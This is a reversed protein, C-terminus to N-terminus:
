NTKDQVLQKNEEIRPWIDRLQPENEAIEFYALRVEALAENRERANEFNNAITEAREKYKAQLDTVSSDIISRLAISAEISGSAHQGKPEYVVCKVCGNHPETVAWCLLPQREASNIKYMIFRM